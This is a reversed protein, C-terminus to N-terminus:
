FVHMRAQSYFLTFSKIDLVYIGISGLWFFCDVLLTPLLDLRLKRRAWEYDARGEVWPVFTLYVTNSVTANVIQDVVVKFTVRWAQPIRRKCQTDLFNYWWHGFPAQFLAGYAWMGQQRTWDITFRDNKQLYESHLSLQSQKMSANSLERNKENYKETNSSDRLKRGLYTCYQAGFDALAGICVTMVTKTRIPHRKLNDNYLRWLKKM